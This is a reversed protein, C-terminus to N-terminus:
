LLLPTVADSHLSVSYKEEVKPICEEKSDELNEIEGVYSAYMILRNVRNYPESYSDGGIEVFNISTNVATTEAEVYCEDERRKQKVLVVKSESFQDRASIYYHRMEDAYFCYSADGYLRGKAKRFPRLARSGYASKRINSDSVYDVEGQMQSFLIPYEIEWPNLILYCMSALEPRIFADALDVLQVTAKAFRV